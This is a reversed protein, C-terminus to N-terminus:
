VLRLGSLRTGHARHPRTPRIRARARRRSSRHHFSRLRLQRSDIRDIFPLSRAGDLEAPATAARRAERPQPAPLANKRVHSCGVRRSVMRRGPLTWTRGAPGVRGPLRDRDANRVGPVVTGEFEGAPHREAVRPEAGREGLREVVARPDDSEAVRRPRHVFRECRRDHVDPPPRPPRPRRRAATATTSSGERDPSRSGLPGSSRSRDARRPKAGDHMM